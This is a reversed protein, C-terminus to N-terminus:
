PEIGRHVHLVGPNLRSCAIVPPATQSPHAALLAVLDLKCQGAIRRFLTERLHYIAEQQHSACGRMYGRIREIYRVDSIPLFSDSRLRYGHALAEKEGGEIVVVPLCAAKDLGPLNGYQAAAFDVLVVKGNALRFYNFRHLCPSNIGGIPAWDPLPSSSEGTPLLIQTQIPVYSKTYVASVTGFEVVGVGQYRLPVDLKTVLEKLALAVGTSFIDCKNRAVWQWYQELSLAKTADVVHSPLALKATAPDALARTVEESSWVRSTQQLVTKPWPLKQENLIDQEKIPLSHISFRAAANLCELDVMSFVRVLDAEPDLRWEKTEADLYPGLLRRVCEPQLLGALTVIGARGQEADYAVCRHRHHAWDATQEAVSAYSTRKCRSCVRKAPALTPAVAAAISSASGM